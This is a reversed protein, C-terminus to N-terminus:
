NKQSYTKPDKEHDKIVRVKGQLTLTTKELTNGTM